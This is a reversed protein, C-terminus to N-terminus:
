IYEVTIQGFSANADLLITGQPDPDAHGAFEMAAFATSTKATVKFRRPVRITLDGFSINAEISCNESVAAVGSLDVDFDGFSTSISGRRLLPLEVYQDMDGFAADLQFSEEDSQYLQSPTNNQNESNFSFEAVPKRPKGLADILLSGGILLIVVAVIVSNDPKFPVPIFDDVLFLGGFIICGLGFFSFKKRQAHIGCVLLASPWIIDWLGVDWQLISTVLYLGGILLLLAAFAIGGHRSSDYKFEWNGKKVHFSENETKRPEVVTAEHIQEEQVGLLADTTTSFIEALKPLITIDPCSQDNEWKSVAQATVGLREALADQTLGLRKRHSVIRKGLTQEM